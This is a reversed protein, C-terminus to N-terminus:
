IGAHCRKGGNMKRGPMKDVRDEEPKADEVEL